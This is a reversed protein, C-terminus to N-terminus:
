YIRCWRTYLYMNRSNVLFSVGEVGIYEVIDNIINKIGTNCPCSARVVNIYELDDQIFINIGAIVWAHFGKL